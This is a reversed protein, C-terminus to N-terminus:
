ENVLKNKLFPYVVAYGAAVCAAVISTWRLAKSWEQGFFHATGTLVLLTIVSMILASWLYDIRTKIKGPLFNSLLEALVMM